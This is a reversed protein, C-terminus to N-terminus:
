HLEMSQGQAPLLHDYSALAHKRRSHRDALEQECRASLYRAGDWGNHDATELLTQWHRAFSTLNLQKLMLPLTASQVM